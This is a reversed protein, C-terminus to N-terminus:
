QYVCLYSTDQEIKVDFATNAEVQFTDGIKFTKWDNEDPLKVAMEGSTITMYEVTSTNFTYEGAAMVGVTADGHETKFAISKVQGDFYENVKFM